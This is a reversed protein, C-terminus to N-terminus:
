LIYVINYFIIDNFHYILYKLIKNFTNKRKQKQKQKRKKIKM